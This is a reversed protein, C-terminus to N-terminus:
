SIQAITLPWYEIRGADQEHNYCLNCLGRARHEVSGEPREHGKVVMPKHCRRCGRPVQATQSNTLDEGDPAFLTSWESLRMHKRETSYCSDCLGRARHVRLNPPKREHKRIVVMEYGCKRCNHPVRSSGTEMRYVQEPVSDDTYLGLASLLLKADTLDEAVDCVTLSARRKVEDDVEQNKQNHISGEVSTWTIMSGKRKKPAM